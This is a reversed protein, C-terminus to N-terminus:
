SAVHRAAIPWPQALLACVAAVAAEDRGGTAIVDAHEPPEFPVGVGPLTAIEGRRARAYLGKDDRTECEALPTRVWVELVHAGTARALDRHARRPATAPVLVVIGQHALLAALEALTRYFADRDATTYAHAGLAAHVADGDLVVASRGSAVLHLWTRAALTSKGSAPLGTFWVIAGTM